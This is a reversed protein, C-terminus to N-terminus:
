DPFDSSNGKPGVQVNLEDTEAGVDAHDRVSQEHLGSEVILSLDGNDLIAAGAHSGLGM